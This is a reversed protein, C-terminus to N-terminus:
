KPPEPLEMWHTPVDTLVPEGYQGWWGGGDWEVLSVHSENYPEERAGYILIWRDKPATEIPQWNM